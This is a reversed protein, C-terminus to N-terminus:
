LSWWYNIKLLFVNDSPLKFSNSFNRSFSTFFQDDFGNRAQAWVLYVTSGPLYEWRLVVNANFVQRNFDPSLGQTMLRKRFDEDFDVFSSPSILRRFEDYHGKALFLQGYIQLTLNRTFTITGGITASYQNTERNGFVTTDPLLNGYPYVWAEENVTSAFLLSATLETWPVPRFTIDATATFLKGQKATSIFTASYSGVAKPRPDTQVGVKLQVESPRKYLERGRTERDDYASFNRQFSTSLTWFNKLEFIPNFEFNKTLNVNDFNWRYDGALRIYYRRLIGPADLEQYQIQSYGGHDNPRLIFGIDNIDYRRSAYSYTTAYVWHKGAIKGLYVRGATGTTRTVLDASTRSFALYGDVAFTSNAFRLNWDVGGSQAPLERRRNVSTLMAGLSSSELLTKKVRVVSFNSLPAALRQEILGTSTAVTAYEEGTVAELLGLTIGNATHATLKGAGLITTKKPLSLVQEGDAAQYDPQLGIRRSYFLNMGAGDFATGFDFIQSGELFFPRKEPYYTEFTTLNLIAQDAEVQGFDPNFTANITATTSIGYRLDLGLGGELKKKEDELAATTQYLQRALAYPLLELYAPPNINQIGVIRGIKSVMGTEGHPIMAWEDTEKKRSIYRRFNVGWSYKKKPPFRLASFPIKLEASWGRKVIKTSSEWVADWNTDYSVGDGSIIGDTQVGSVNVSFNFATRRDQYSDISISIRDAESAHDRRTLQRVIRKPHSDYMMIGFYIAHDDYLIRVSTSETPAAGEVPDFQTFSSSPHAFSWVKDTLFGDIKPPSPTRVAVILRQSSGALAVTCVPLLLILLKIQMTIERM